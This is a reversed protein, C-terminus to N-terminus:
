NLGTNAVELAPLHFDQRMLLLFRVILFQKIKMSLLYLSPKESVVTLKKGIYGLDIRGSNAPSLEYWDIDDESNYFGRVFAPFNLVQATEQANNPEFELGSFSPDFSYSLQYSFEDYNISNSLEIYIKGEARLAIRNEGLVSNGTLEALTSNADNLVRLNPHSTTSLNGDLDHIYITLLGSRPVEIFFFDKDGTGHVTGKTSQNLTPQNASTSLNNPEIEFNGFFDEERIKISYLSRDLVVGKKIRLLYNKSDNSIFSIDRSDYFGDEALVDLDESLIAVEWGILEFKNSEISNNLEFSVIVRKDPLVLNMGIRMRTHNFGALAKKVILLFRILLQILIMPNVKLVKRHMVKLFAIVDRPQDMLIKTEVFFLTLFGKM